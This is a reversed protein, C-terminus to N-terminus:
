GSPEMRLVRVPSAITILFMQAGPSMSWSNASAAYLCACAPLSRRWQRSIQETAGRSRRKTARGRGRAYRAQRGLPSAAHVSGRGRHGAMADRGWFEGHRARRCVTPSWANRGQPAPPTQRQGRRGSREAGHCERRPPRPGRRCGCPSSGWQGGHRNPANTLGAPQAEAVLPMALLGGAIMAMSTRREMAHDGTLLRAAM